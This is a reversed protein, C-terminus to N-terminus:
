AFRLLGAVFVVGLLVGLLGLLQTQLGLFRAGRFDTVNMAVKMAVSKLVDKFIAGRAGVLARASGMGAGHGGAQGQLVVIM